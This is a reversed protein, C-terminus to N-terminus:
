RLVAREDDGLVKPAGGQAEDMATAVAAAIGPDLGSAWERIREPSVGPAWLCEAITIAAFSAGSEALECLADLVFRASRHGLWDGAAGCLIQGIGPVDRYTATGRYASGAFQSDHSRTEFSLTHGSTATVSSTVSLVLVTYNIM